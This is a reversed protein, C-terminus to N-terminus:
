RSLADVRAAVIWADNYGSKRLDALFDEAQSRRAFDGVQLKYYPSDFVIYLPQRTHSEMNKKEVRAREIDSSALIQIRFGDVVRRAPLDTPAPANAVAPNTTAPSPSSQPTSSPMRAPQQAPAAETYILKVDKEILGVENGKILTDLYTLTVPKSRDDAHASPQEGATKDKDRNWPWDFSYLNDTEARALWACCLVFAFLSKM